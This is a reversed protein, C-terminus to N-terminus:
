TPRSLPSAAAADLLERPTLTAAGLRQVVAQGAINSLFAADRMTAGSSVALTFVASVTDGAGTVDVVANDPLAVPIRYTPADREFLVIGESGRTILIGCADMGDVLRRGGAELDDDDHFRTGLTSEAEPQNPTAATVGKFRFLDCHSDVIVPLDLTRARPLCADIVEQSIVGNEYDSILLAQYSELEARLQDIMRDLVPGDVPHRDIRDIRVVQQQAEQAGKALVRTATSTPRSTDTLLCETRIGAKELVGRLRRGMEDDGIVGVLSAGAGLAAINYAVNTAGGPRVFSSTYQLILVPAERSLREPRGILYEDAVIDGLVLVRRDRFRALLDGYPASM